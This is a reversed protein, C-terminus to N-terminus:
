RGYRGRVGEFFELMRVTQGDAQYTAAL